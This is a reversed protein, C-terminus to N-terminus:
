RSAAARDLAARPGRRVLYIGLMVVLAGLLQLKGLPEGLALHAIAVAAVPTLNSYVATDTPGIRDVAFYWLSYALVLAFAGSFLIAWWASGPVASLDLRALSPLGFPLFFVTGISLAYASSKLAGYRSVVRRSLVTHLSWCFTALLTLADGISNGGLPTADSLILSVGVVSVGIGALASPALPDGELGRSLLAVFVPTLGLLIASNSATTISIGTIFLLQYITHGVVGLTMFRGRDEPRVRPGPALRALSLLLTSALVLRLSNFALPPFHALAGKVLSYNLAWILVTLILAADASSARRPISV